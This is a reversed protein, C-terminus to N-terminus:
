RNLSFIKELKLIMNKLLPQHFVVLRRLTRFLRFIPPGVSSPFERRIDRLNNWCVSSSCVGLLGEGVPQLPFDKVTPSRPIARPTSRPHTTVKKSLWRNPHGVKQPPHHSSDYPHFLDDVVELWELPNIEDAIWWNLRSKLLSKM